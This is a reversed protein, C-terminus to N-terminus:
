GFCLVGADASAKSRARFKGQIKGAAIHEVDSGTFGFDDGAAAVVEGRLARLFPLQDSGPASAAARDLLDLYRLDAVLPLALHLLFISTYISCCASTVWECNLISGM